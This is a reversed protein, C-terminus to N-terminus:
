ANAIRWEKVKTVKRTRLNRVSSASLNLCRSAEACSAFWRIERTIINQLVVPKNCRARLKRLNEESRPQPKGRRKNAGIRHAEKDYPRGAAGPGGTCINLLSGGDLKRGYFSILEAECEYAEWETAFYFCQTHEKNAVPIKDQRYDKRFRQGKGVYYPRWQEDYYIYCYYDRM